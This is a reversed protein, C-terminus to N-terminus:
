RKAWEDLGQVVPREWEQDGPSMLAVITAKSVKNPLRITLNSIEPQQRQAAPAKADLVDFSAGKPSLIRVRLKEEGQTLTAQYGEIAFDAPTLFNWRVEVPEKAEIEDQVLVHSREIMAIGRRVRKAKAGYTATLDAIAHSREKQTVYTVVPAEAEPDQNEGDLTLTNHSEARLRYHDWRQKGFYGPLSYNDAGLDM